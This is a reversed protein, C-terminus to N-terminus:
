GEWHSWSQILHCSYPLSSDSVPWCPDGHKTKGGM